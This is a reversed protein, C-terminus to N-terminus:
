RDRLDDRDALLKKYQDDAKRKEELLINQMHEMNKNAQQEMHYKQKDLNKYAAELKKNAAELEAIRKQHEQCKVSDDNVHKELRQVMDKASKLENEVATRTKKEQGLSYTYFLFIRIILKPKGEYFLLLYSKTLARV